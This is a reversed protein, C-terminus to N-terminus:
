LDLGRLNKKRLIVWLVVPAGILANVTNLHFIHRGWALHTVLDASLALLAGMLVTAPVLTRHDSTNFLGRCLHPVAIGLFVVPGCYATVAGALIALCGFALLRAKGVTLGLTRAYNEGLLLANLPKVLTFSIVLGVVVVPILIGVQNWTIKAFSADDWGSFVSTQAEETFHLLLSVFGEVLYQTMLGVVLLTVTSVRRSIALIFLLVATSGISAAAALGINAAIDYAGFFNTTTAGALVVIAAVGFEGGAAMGLTWPSALPNRFLTQTLLGSVGLAAGAFLATLARPLRLDFLIRTWTQREIEVGVLSKIIASLPITVAGFTLEAVFVAVVAIILVAFFWSQTKLNARAEDIAAVRTKVQSLSGATTINEM